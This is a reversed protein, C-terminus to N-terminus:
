LDGMIKAEEGNAIAIQNFLMKAAQATIQKGNLMYGKRICPTGTKPATAKSGKVKFVSLDKSNPTKFKYEREGAKEADKLAVAMIASAEYVKVENKKNKGKGAKDKKAM